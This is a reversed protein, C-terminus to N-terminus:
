SYAEKYLKRLISDKRIPDLLKNIEKAVAKKVDLPHLKGSSYDRELDEYNSYQINGGYKEDRNIIFKEKNDNKIVFIVYKLFAMIGNKSDKAIMEANNIRKNVIEEKDFMDVKSGEVSSSMKEGVLGPIIPHMIEIRSKYGIKPLFERAFVFIKRQDMGGLQADVNLYEEDLSQMIPYILGGLKPHDGLKVVESAARMSEKVGSLTSLKLVDEFYRGNLQIKSGKVFELKKTDVGLVKLMIRILKEYYKGRKKLLKWSTGDLAAHLDAILIKVRLGAKLLDAIKLLPFYYSVHPAGTPMTGWYVSFEKKTKLHKELEEEGIIEITNRKILDLKDM